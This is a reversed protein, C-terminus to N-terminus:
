ISLIYELYQRAIVNDGFVKTFFVKDRLLKECKTKLEEQKSNDLIIVGHRLISEYELGFNELTAAIDILEMLYEGTSRSDKCALLYNEAIKKYALYLNGLSQEPQNRRAYEKAAGLRTILNIENPYRVNIEDLVSSIDDLLNQFSYHEGDNNHM